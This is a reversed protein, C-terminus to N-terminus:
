ADELIELRGIRKANLYRWRTRSAQEIALTLRHPKPKVLAEGCILARGEDFFCLVRTGGRTKLEYVDATLRRFRTINHPPGCEAVFDFLRLLRAFEPPDNRRLRVAFDLVDCREKDACVALVTWQGRAITRLRM